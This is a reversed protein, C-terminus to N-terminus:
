TKSVSKPASMATMSSPWSSTARKCFPPGYGSMVLQERAPHLVHLVEERLEDGVHRRDLRRLLDHAHQGLGKEGFAFADIALLEEIDGDHRARGLLELDLTGLVAEVVARGLHVRNQGRALEAIQELHV